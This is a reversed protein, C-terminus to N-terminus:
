LMVDFVTAFSKLNATWGMLDPFRSLIYHSCSQQTKKPTFM